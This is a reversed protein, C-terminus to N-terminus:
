RPLSGKAVEAAKRGRGALGDLGGARGTLNGGLQSSATM